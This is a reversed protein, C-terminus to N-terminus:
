NKDIKTPFNINSKGMETIQSQDLPSNNIPTSTELHNPHYGPEVESEVYCVPSIKDSM